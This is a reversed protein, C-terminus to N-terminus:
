QFFFVIKDQRVLKELDKDKSVNDLFEDFKSFVWTDLLSADGSAFDEEEHSYMFMEMKNKDDTGQAFM